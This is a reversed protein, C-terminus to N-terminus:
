KRLKNRFKEILQIDVSQCSDIISDEESSESLFNDLADEHMFEFLSFTPKHLFPEHYVNTSKKELLKKLSYMHSLAYFAESIFNEREVHNNKPSIKYNCNIGDVYGYNGEVKSSLLASIKWKHNRVKHGSWTIDEITETSKKYENTANIALKTIISENLFIDESVEMTSIEFDGSLSLHQSESITSRRSQSSKELQMNLSNRTENQYSTEKEKQMVNILSQRILEQINEKSFRPQGVRKHSTTTVTEFEEYIVDSSVNKVYPLNIPHLNNKYTKQYINTNVDSSFRPLSIVKASYVPVLSIITPLNYKACELLKVHNSFTPTATLINPNFECKKLFEMCDLNITPLCIYNKLVCYKSLLNHQYLKIPSFTFSSNILIANKPIVYRSSDVVDQLITKRVKTAFLSKNRTMKKLIKSEKHLRLLKYQCNQLNEINKNDYMNELIRYLQNKAFIRKYMEDNILSQIKFYVPITTKCSIRSVSPLYIKNNCSVQSSVQHSIFKRQTDNQKQIDHSM